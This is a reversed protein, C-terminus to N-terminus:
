RLSFKNLMTNIQDRSNFMMVDIISLSGYFVNGFQKYEIPQSELFHLGIKESEFKEHSYLNMGGIANYYVDANLKRCIDIIKDQGKLENNKELSSSMIIETNMDFYNAVIRIQDFLFLALNKEKNLLIKKMLNMTEEYFPARKYNYEITKLTKKRLEIDASLEIENIKKNQSVGSLELNIYHPEKNILIRNRNIWGRKIYNVDDFVVYTDVANLLQWYGIYPVFYPQMIAIKRMKEKKGYLHNYM